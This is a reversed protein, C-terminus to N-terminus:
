RTLDLMDLTKEGHEDMPVAVALVPDSELTVEDVGIVDSLAMSDINHQNTSDFAASDYTTVGM